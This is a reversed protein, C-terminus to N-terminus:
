RIGAAAVSFAVTRNVAEGDNPTLRTSPSVPEGNPVPTRDSAAVVGTSTVATVLVTDM